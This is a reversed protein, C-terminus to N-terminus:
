KMFKKFKKSKKRPIRTKTGLSELEIRHIPCFYSSSEEKFSGLGSERVRSTYGCKPCILTQKRAYSLATGCAIADYHGRNQKHAKM